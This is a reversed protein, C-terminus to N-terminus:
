SIFLVNYSSNMRALKRALLREEDEAELEEYQQKDEQEQKRQQEKLEDENSVPSEVEDELDYDIPYVPDNRIIVLLILDKLLMIKYFSKLEWCLANCAGVDKCGMEDFVRLMEVVSGCAYLVSSVTTGDAKFGALCMEKFVEVVEFCRGKQNFEAVMGNLILLGYKLEFNDVTIEPVVIDDEYGVIPAKLLQAMTRTDDMTVVPPVQNEIPEVLNFPEVFNPNVQQQQRNSNRSQSRTRM